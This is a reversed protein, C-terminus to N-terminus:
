RSAPEEPASLSALGEVGDGDEDDRERELDL